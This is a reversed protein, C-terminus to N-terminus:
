IGTLFVFVRVLCVCREELVTIDSVQCDLDIAVITLCDAVVPVPPPPDLSLSHLAFRLIWRPVKQFGTQRYEVQAAEVM